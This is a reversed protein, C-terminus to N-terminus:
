ELWFALVTGLLWLELGYAYADDRLVYEIREPGVTFEAVDGFRLAFQNEVRYLRTATTADAEGTPSSYLLSQQTLDLPGDAAVVHLDPPGSRSPFHPILDLDTTMSIGYIGVQSLSSDDNPSLAM